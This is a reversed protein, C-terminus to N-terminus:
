VVASPKLRVKDQRRTKSNSIPHFSNKGIIKHHAKYVRGMGGEGIITDVVYRDGITTGIYPDEVEEFDADEGDVSSPDDWDISESAVGPLPNTPPAEEDEFNTDIEGFPAQGTVASAPRPPLPAPQAAPAGGFVGALAQSPESGFAPRPPPPRKTEAEKANAEDIEDLYVPITGTNQRRPLDRQSPRPPPQKGQVGSSRTPTGATPRSGSGPHSGPASTPDTGQESGSGPGPSLPSGQKKFASM